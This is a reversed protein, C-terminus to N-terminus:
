TKISVGRAEDNNRIKNMDILPRHGASVGIFVGFMEDCAMCFADSLLLGIYASGHKMGSFINRHLHKSVNIHWRTPLSCRFQIHSCWCFSGALM